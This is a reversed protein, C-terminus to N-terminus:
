GGLSLQRMVAQAIDLCRQVLTAAVARQELMGEAQALQAAARRAAEGDGAASHEEVAQQQQEIWAALQRQQQEASELLQTAEAMFAMPDVPDAVLQDALEAGGPGGGLQAALSFLDGGAPLGGAFAARLRAAAERAREERVLGSGVGGDGAPHTIRLITTTKQQPWNAPPLQSSDLCLFCLCRPPHAPLCVLHRRGVGRCAGEGPDLISLLEDLLRLAPPARQREVEAKLRSSLPNTTPHPPQPPQPVACTGTLPCFLVRM